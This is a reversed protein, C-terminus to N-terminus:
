ALRLPAQEAIRQFDADATLLLCEHEIAAVAIQCDITTAAIGRSACRRHLRAAAVYHHRTQELLAFPELTATVRQVTAEDRFAQLIEQLIPGTLVVDEQGRLLAGLKRVVPDDAPGGRRLSRSWVSTDVLVKM